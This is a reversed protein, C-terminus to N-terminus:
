YKVDVPYEIIIPKKTGNLYTYGANVAVRGQFVQGIYEDYYDYKVVVVNYQDYNVAAYYNRTNFASSEPPGSYTETTGWEKSITGSLEGTLSQNVVYKIGIDAKASFKVTGSVSSKSTKSSTKGKPVSILLTQQEIPGVSYGTIVSSGVSYASKVYVRRDGAQPTIESNNKRVLKPDVFEYTANPNGPTEYKKNGSLDESVIFETSPTTVDVVPNPNLQIENGFESEASAMPALLTLATSVSLLMSTIKKM